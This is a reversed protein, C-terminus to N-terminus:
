AHYTSFKSGSSKGFGSVKIQSHEFYPMSMDIQDALDKQTQRERDREMENCIRDFYAKASGHAQVSCSYLRAYIREDLPLYEGSPGNHIFLLRWGQCIPNQMRPARSWVQWRQNIPNWTIELEQGMEAKFRKMFSDPALQADPRFPHWYWPNFEPGLRKPKAIQQKFPATRM